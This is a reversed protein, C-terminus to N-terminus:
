RKHRQVETTCDIGSHEYRMLDDRFLKGACGIAIMPKIINSKGIKRRFRANDSQYEEHHSKKM